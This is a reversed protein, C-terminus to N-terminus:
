ALTAARNASITTGFSSRIPMITKASRGSATQAGSRPNGAIM